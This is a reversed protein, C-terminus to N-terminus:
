SSLSELLGALALLRDGVRFENYLQISTKGLKKIFMGINSGNVIAVSMPVREGRPHIMFIVFQGPGWKRAVLSCKGRYLLRRQKFRRKRHKM